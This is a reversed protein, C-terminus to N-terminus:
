SNKADGPTLQCVKNVAQILEGLVGIDLKDILDADASGDLNKVEVVSMRVMKLIDERTGTFDLMEAGTLPRLVFVTKVDATDKSYTFETRENIDIGRIM